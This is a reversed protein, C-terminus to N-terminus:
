RYGKTKKKLELTHEQDVKPIAVWITQWTMTGDIDDHGREEMVKIRLMSRNDNRDVYYQLTYEGDSEGGFDRYNFTILAMTQTNFDVAESISHNDLCKNSWGGAESWNLTFNLENRLDDESYIFLIQSESFQELTSICELQDTATLDVVEEGRFGLPKQCASFVLALLVTMLTFKRM